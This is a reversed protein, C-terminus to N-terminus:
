EPKKEDPQDNAEAFQRVGINCRDCGIYWGFETHRPRVKRGCFPCPKVLRLLRWARKLKKRKGM